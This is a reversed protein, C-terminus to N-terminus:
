TTLRDQGGRQLGVVVGCVAASAALMLAMRGWGDAAESTDPFQTENDVEVMAMRGLDELTAM